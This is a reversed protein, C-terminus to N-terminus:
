TWAYQNWAGLHFAVWNPMIGLAKTDIDTLKLNLLTQSYILLTTQLSESLTDLSLVLCIPNSKIGGLGHVLIDNSHPSNTM